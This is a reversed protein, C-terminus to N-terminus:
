AAELDRRALENNGSWLHARARERLLRASASNRALLLDYNTIAAAHNGNTLLTHALRERIEDDNPTIRLADNLIAITAATDALQTAVDAAEIRVAVSRDLQMLAQYRQQADS